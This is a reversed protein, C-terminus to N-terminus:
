EPDAPPIRRFRVRGVVLQQVGAVGTVLVRVSWVDPDLPSPLIWVELRELRHSLRLSVSADPFAIWIMFRLSKRLPAERAAKVAPVAAARAAPSGLPM